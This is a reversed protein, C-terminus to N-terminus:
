RGSQPPHPLFSRAKLSNYFNGQVLFQLAVMQGAYETLDIADKEWKTSDHDLYHSRVPAENISV